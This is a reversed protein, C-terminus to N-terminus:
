EQRGCSHGHGGCSHGHGHDGCSHDEGHGHEHGHHDCRANPDYSLQGGALAKAAEDASGTVGGYLQIGAEALAMQAGGGIGGCILADVQHEALFGALAGHGSGMTDVVQERVIVGDEVDYLKFQETHGFHQFIMGNEYTVAIRMARDGKREIPVSWELVPAELRAGVHRAGEQGAWAAMQSGQGPEVLGGGAELGASKRVGARSWRCRAAGCGKATGDCIRYDGGSICLRRGNVICDALKYRASEYIETVTTRSVEMWAACEEHTKKELDILRIAEYEDLTLVVPEGGAIGEPLFVDYAPEACIRRCRKPRPM